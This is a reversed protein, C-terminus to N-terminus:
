GGEREREREREREVHWTRPNPPDLTKPKNPGKPLNPKPILFGGKEDKKRKKNLQKYDCSYVLDLLSM